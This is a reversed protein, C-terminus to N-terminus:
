IQHLLVRREHIEDIFHKLDNLESIQRDLEIIIENYINDYTERFNNFQTRTSADFQEIRELITGLNNRVSVFTAYDIPVNARIFHLCARMLAIYRATQYSVSDTNYMDAVHACHFAEILEINRRDQNALINTYLTLQHSLRDHEKIVTRMEIANFVQWGLLAAVLLSLIGVIVGMYDISLDARPYRTAIAIVSLIIAVLAFTIAWATGSYRNAKENKNM